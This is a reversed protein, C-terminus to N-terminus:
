VSTGTVRAVPQIGITISTITLINKKKLDAHNSLRKNQVVCINILTSFTCIAARLVTVISNAAIGARAVSAVSQVSIPYCAITPPGVFSQRM